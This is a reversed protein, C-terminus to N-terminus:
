GANGHADGGADAPQEVNSEGDITNLTAIARMTQARAARMYDLATRVYKMDRAHAEVERDFEDHVIGLKAELTGLRHQLRNREDLHEQTRTALKQSVDAMLRRHTAQPVWLELFTGADVENATISHALALAEDRKLGVNQLARDTQTSIFYMRQDRTDEVSLTVEDLSVLDTM